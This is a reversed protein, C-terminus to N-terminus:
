QDGQNLGLRAPPNLMTSDVLAADSLEHTNRLVSHLPYPIKM